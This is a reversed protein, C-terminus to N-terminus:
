DLKVLHGYLEFIKELDIEPNNEKYSDLMNIIPNDNTFEKKMIPLVNNDILESSQFNINLVEVDGSYVKWMAIRQHRYGAELEIRVNANLLYKLQINREELSRSSLTLQSRKKGLVQAYDYILYLDHPAWDIEPAFESRLLNGGREVQVDLAGQMKLLIGKAEKWLV